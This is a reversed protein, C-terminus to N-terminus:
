KGVIGKLLNTIEELKNNVSGMETKLQSVSDKLTNIEEDRNKAAKMLKSKLKYDDAQKSDKMLLAKSHTDRLFSNNETQVKMM